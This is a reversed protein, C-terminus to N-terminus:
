LREGSESSQALVVCKRLAKHMANPAISCLAFREADDASVDRTESLADDLTTSDSVTANDVDTLTMAFLGIHRRM